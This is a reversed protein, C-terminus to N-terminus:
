YGRPVNTNAPLAAPYVPLPFSRCFSPWRLCDGQVIVSWLVANHPTQFSHMAQPDVSFDGEMELPRGDEIRVRRCELVVQRSVERRETRIDTGSHYTAEECCVLAVELRRLAFRGYQALHLRYTNAPRIPLDSIEIVTPGISTLLFFLTLFRRASWVAVAIFLPLAALLGWPRVGQIIQTAAVAVLGATLANWSLALFGSLAVMGLEPRLSPLRYALRVGPSDVFAALAPVGEPAQNSDLPHSSRGKPRHGLIALRHEHSILVQGVRYVFGITGILVFATSVVLLMWGTLGPGLRPWQQAVWYWAGLTALCFVGVMALAAFFLAEGLSGVLWWGSLRQGRKKGWLRFLRAMAM